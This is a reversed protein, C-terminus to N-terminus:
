VKYCVGLNYSKSKTETNKFYPRSTYGLLAKFM